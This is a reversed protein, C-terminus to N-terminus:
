RIEIDKYIEKMQIDRDMRYNGKADFVADALTRKIHKEYEKPVSTNV